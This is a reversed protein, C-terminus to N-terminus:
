YKRYEFYENICIFKYKTLTYKTNDYDFVAIYRGNAIKDLVYVGNENTTAELVNGDTTKVFNNTEANLLRVKIGSLLQEGEDKSGNADEDFWAVGTITMNGKAIDNDDVDNNGNFSGDNAQIIHNIEASTAVREGYVEAYAVNTIAEATTRGASYNVVTNIVITSDQNAEIQVPIELNNTTIGEVPAGNLLVSEINLQSPINDKVVLGSTRSTSSNKINITYQISDGAKVYQSETQTEM